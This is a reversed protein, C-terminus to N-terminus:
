NLLLNWRSLITKIVYKIFTFLNLIKYDVNTKKPKYKKEIYFKLFTRM